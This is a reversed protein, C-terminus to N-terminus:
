RTCPAHASGHTLCNYLRRWTRRAWPLFMSRIWRRSSQSRASRLGPCRVSSVSCKGPCTIAASGSRTGGSSSSVNTSSSCSGIRAPRTYEEVVDSPSFPAKYQFPWTRARPLGGVYITAARLTDMDSIPTGFIREQVLVEPRCYDWYVDPVYLMESDAFNHKLQAANAAERMLDLEDIITHEYEDVVELPKLRKGHEWYRDALGALMEQLVLYDASDSTGFLSRARDHLVASWDRLKQSKNVERRSTEIM